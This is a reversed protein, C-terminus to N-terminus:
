EFKFKITENNISLLQNYKLNNYHVDPYYSILLDKLGTQKYLFYDRRGALKVYQAKDITNAKVNILSHINLIFSSGQSLKQIDKTEKDTKGIRKRSAKDLVNLAYLINEQCLKEFTALDFFFTM